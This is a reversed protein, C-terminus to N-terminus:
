LPRVVGVVSGGVARIRSQRHETKRNRTNRHISRNRNKFFIPTRLARNRFFIPTRLAYITDTGLSPPSPSLTCSLLGLQYSLYPQINGSTKKPLDYLSFWTFLYMYNTKMILASHCARISGWSPGSGLLTLHCSPFPCTQYVFAYMCVNTQNIIATAPRPQHWPMSSDAALDTRAAPPSIDHVERTM